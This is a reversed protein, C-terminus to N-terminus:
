MRGTLTTYFEDVQSPLLLLAMIFRMSAAQLVAMLPSIINNQLKMNFHFHDPLSRYLKTAPNRLNVANHFFYSGDASATYIAYTSGTNTFDYILNDLQKRAPLLIAMITISVMFPLAVLETYGTTRASPLDGMSYANYLSYFTTGDNRNLRGVDNGELLMTGTYYLYIGYYYADKM